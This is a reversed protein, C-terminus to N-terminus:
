DPIKKVWRRLFFQGYRSMPLPFAQQQRLIHMAPLARCLLACTWTTIVCRILSGPTGVSVFLRFLYVSLLVFVGIAGYLCWSYGYRIGYGLGVFSLSLGLGSLGYGRQTLGPHGLLAIINLITYLIGLFILIHSARGPRQEPTRSQNV